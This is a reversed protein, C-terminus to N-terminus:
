CDNRSLEERQEDLLRDVSEGPNASHGRVKGQLGALVASVPRLRIEGNDVRAVVVGGAELGVAKRHRAPITVRGAESVRLMIVEERM